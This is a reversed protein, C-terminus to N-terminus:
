KFIQRRHHLDYRLFKGGRTAQLLVRPRTATECPTPYADNSHAYRFMARSFFLTQVFLFHDPGTLKNKNYGSHITQFPFYKGLHSPLSVLDVAAMM